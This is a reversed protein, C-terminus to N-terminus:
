TNYLLSRVPSAAEAASASAAATRKKRKEGASLARTAAHVLLTEPELRKERLWSSDLGNAGGSCSSMERNHQRQRQRQREKSERSNNRRMSAGSMTRQDSSASAASASSRMLAPKYCAWSSAPTWQKTVTHYQMGTSASAHLSDGTWGDVTRNSTSKRVSSRKSQV